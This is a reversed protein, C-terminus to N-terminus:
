NLLNLLNNIQIDNLLNVNVIKDYSYTVRNDFIYIKKVYKMTYINFITSMPGTNIGIIIKSHTSIAGIKKLSLNNDTTCLIGKIKQTTCIKLHRDHLNLSFKEWDDFYCYMCQASKPDSNIILIDLNKYKYDLLEYETLLSFDTNLFNDIHINFGLKNSAENFFDIYLTDYVIKSNTCVSKIFAVVGNNKFTMNTLGLNLGTNNYPLIKVNDSTKFEIIQDIYEPM